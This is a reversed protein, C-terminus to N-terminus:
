ALSMDIAPGLGQNCSITPLPVFAEFLGTRADVFIRKQSTTNFIEHNEGDCPDVGMANRAM